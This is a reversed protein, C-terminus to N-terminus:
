VEGRRALPELKEVPPLSAPLLTEEDVVSGRQWYADLIEVARPSTPPMVVTAALEGARVMEAGEDPLGDCGLIPTAALGGGGPSPKSSRSEYLQLARRAGRAMSDNQCVILDVTRGRGLNFRLWDSLAQQARDEQWNGEIEHIEVADGVVERFGAERSKTSPTARAGLVLAVSGGEPLLQLCQRGQIRGIETQNPAVSALLTGPFSQRLSELEEPIRNLFVCDVAEKALAEIASGMQNAAVLLLLLGDPRPNARLTEYCQGIQRMLSGQAFRPELLDMGREGAASRAAEVLQQQYANEEDALLLQIRKV